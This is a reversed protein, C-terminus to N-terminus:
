HKTLHALLQDIGKGIVLDVITTSQVEARTPTHVKRMEERTEKLFEMLRQPGSAARQVATSQENSEIVAAKAM